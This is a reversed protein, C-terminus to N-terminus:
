KVVVLKKTEVFDPSQIQVFYIGPAFDKTYVETKQNTATTNYILNGTVDIIKITVSKGNAFQKNSITFDNAAPNPYISYAQNPEISNIANLVASYYYYVSDYNMWNNANWNQLVKSVQNNNADYTYLLQNYNNWSSGNWTQSLSSTKNNNADYTNLYQPTNGWSSGNWIQSLHSIQNNNADYTFFIQQYNDWSNGNGKQFWFVTFHFIM